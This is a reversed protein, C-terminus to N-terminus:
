VDEGRLRRYRILFKASADSAAEWETSGKDRLSAVHEFRVAKLWYYAERERRQWLKKDKKPSFRVAELMLDHRVVALATAKPTNKDPHWSTEVWIKSPAPKRVTTADKGTGREYVAPVGDFPDITARILTRGNELETEEVKAEWWDMQTADLM